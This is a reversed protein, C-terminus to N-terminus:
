VALNESFSGNPDNGIWNTIGTTGHSGATHQRATPSQSHLSGSGSPSCLRDRAARFTQMLALFGSMTVIGRQGSMLANVPTSSLVALSLMAYPYFLMGLAFDEAADEFLFARLRIRRIAMFVLAVVSAVMEHIYGDIFDSM